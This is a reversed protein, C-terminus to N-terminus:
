EPLPFTDLPFQDALYLPYRQVHERASLPKASFIIYYPSHYKEVFIKVSKAQTVWGSKVEIPIAHGGQEFLFEVEATKEQWSYLSLQGNVLFAQALYNEAFFGKYSGYDYDHIMSPTIKSMAGLLGVDFLYLKFVNEESYASFPLQGSHAIPVKIILGAKELWDFAGVLKSYRDIGPVAGKFVYKSASGDQSRALQSPISEFIRAIHMANVSGAHKAIDGLYSTILNKQVERVKQFAVFTNDKHKIFTKVVEPLGGVIFYEKLQQWLHAHALHPIPLHNADRLVLLSKHDERALLFEEFSMPYLHLIDVKGVPFSVPALYVGLLSGAACIALRPMKEQFYKLSTLARPCAQIEDFIVLDREIDID